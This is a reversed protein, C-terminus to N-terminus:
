RLFDLDLEPGLDRVFQELVRVADVADNLDLTCVPTHSYRRALGLGATPVGRRSLHISGADTGAKAVITCPQLTVGIQSAAHRLHRNMAPHGIHASNALLLVPGKGIAAPLERHADVDPTDGAMFTDVVIACDPEARYAAVGAGRLGVEEQVCIVGSLTGALPQGMLRRFLELVIACGIRNDISKGCVRDANSFTMLPSVYAVPEGVAIGMAGVQEASDAGVDIYLADIDLVTRREQASQLHGSKVGVVGLHGRVRVRRGVLMGPLVGGLIDFRLFGTPEVSKVIAGIEDSHASVMLHPGATDGLRRAYLNGMRDVEVEDAVPGFADKLYRVVDQEFGSVGDLGTLENLTRWLSAKLDTVPVGWRTCIRGRRALWLRGCESRVLDAGRRRESIPIM